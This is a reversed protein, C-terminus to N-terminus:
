KQSMEPKKSKNKDYVRKLLLEFVNGWGSNLCYHNGM